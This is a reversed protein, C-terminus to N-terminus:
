TDGCRDFVSWQIYGDDQDATLLPERLGEMQRHEGWEKESMGCGLQVWDKGKRYTTLFQNWHYEFVQGVLPTRRVRRTETNRAEDSETTEEQM